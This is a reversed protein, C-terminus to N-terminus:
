IAKKFNEYRFALRDKDPYDSKSRPLIISHGNIAKLGFELMPGDIENLIDERVDLTYDPTIGFINQDYASHHIKCLTLGNTVVPHGQEHADPIIHAADLLESHKLRCITCRRDYADLVYERFAAQHLRRKTEGAAYRRLNLDPESVKFANDTVASVTDFTTLAPDIVAQVCLHQPDDEIILLPWVAQYKGPKIAYFYVLPTRNLYAKRLGLNDRHNIDQGRYSYRLIGEDSLGDDYPGGTTTCISIPIDMGKPIWIGTPGILTIHHNNYYFDNALEARTFIGANKTERIKLWQFLSYRLDLDSDNM